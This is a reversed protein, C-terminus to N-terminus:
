RVRFSVDAKKPKKERNGRKDVAVTYYRYRSGRKVNLKKRTKKTSFIRKYKGGNKSRYIRYNKIGSSRLGRVRADKGKWRLTFSRGRLSKPGRAKSSPARRDIRRAASVAAGANVVGWGTEPNWGSGSPRTATEKLIRVVDDSRLDPNLHKVLAAIGAVKPAAMSTGNLYGYRGDGNISTRCGCPPINEAAIGTDTLTQNAPLAGIVGDPGAFSTGAYGGHGALSIQTGAGAFNSRLGSFDASTVSLGLNSELNQGTATPQLLNAPDGQEQGGFNNDAAAVLVVNKSLAYNLAAILQPPPALGSTNGFSMNIADAGLDTADVISKIIFADSLQTKIVILSCNLGTGVLGAGNNGSACAASAVHTGHGDLDVNAPGAAPDNDVAAAIKGAFEPHNGDIGSDIIAVKAGSGRTVDWASFLNEKAAWWAKTIGLPTGPATEQQTLAPDNPIFRRKYVRDVGVSKVWPLTRLVAATAALTEGALPRVSVMGLEPVQAGDKRAGVRHLVSTTARSQAGRDVTVLLRGTREAASASASAGLAIGVLLLPLLLRRSATLLSFPM